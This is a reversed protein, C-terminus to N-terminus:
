LRDMENLILASIVEANLASEAFRRSRPGLDRLSHPERLLASLKTAPSAGADVIPALKLATIADRLDAPFAGVVSVGHALALFATSSVFPRSPDDVFLDSERLAARLLRSQALVEPSIPTREFKLGRMQLEDIIPAAGEHSLYAIRRTLAPDSRPAAAQALELDVPLPLPIARPHGSLQRLAYPDCCFAIPLQSLRQLQIAAIERRLDYVIVAPKIGSSGLEPIDWIAGEFLETLHFLVFDGREPAIAGETVSGECVIVEQDASLQQRALAERVHRLGGIHFFRAAM